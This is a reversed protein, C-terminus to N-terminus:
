GENLSLESCNKKDATSENLPLYINFTSGKTPASEVDIHGKHQNIIGYVISLGLGTGHGTDKTTFFPDFIKDITSKDIGTGYDTLSIVVYKCHTNEDCPTLSTSGKETLRTTITIPGGDPMSDRANTILNMLVQEMHITDAVVTLEDEALNLRLDISDTLLRLLMPEVNRIIDNVNVPTPNIIQERGFTLLRLTLEEAKASSSLIHQIYQTTRDGSCKEKELMRGYGKIVSIINNFDHAIGGALAGVAKMKQAQRLQQELDQNETERMKLSDAMENFAKALNGIDDKTEIPIHEFPAYTQIAKVGHTLRKLPRTIGKVIFYAILWGPIIFIIPVMISNILVERLNKNLVRTTLILRVFGIIYEEKESAQNKFYLDEESYSGGSIVPAWFDFRDDSAFHLVAKTTKLTEFIQKYQESDIESANEINYEPKAISALQKGDDSYAQILVAEEYKMMGEMPTKLLDDNEAFVGLTLDHAILAALQKGEGLLHSHLLKSQYFIFFSTFSVYLIVAFVTFLLFIKATFSGIKLKAFNILAHIRDKGM